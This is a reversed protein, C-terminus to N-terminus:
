TMWGASCLTCGQCVPFCVWWVHGGWSLPHKHESCWPCTMNSAWCGVLKKNKPQLSHYKSEKRIYSNCHRRIFLVRNYTFTMCEFDYKLESTYLSFHVECTHYDTCNLHIDDTFLLISHLVPSTSVMYLINGFINGHGKFKSKSIM